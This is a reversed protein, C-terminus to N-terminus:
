VFAIISRRLTIRVQPLWLLLLQITEMVPVPVDPRRIGLEELFLKLNLTEKLSEIEAMAVLEAETTSQATLRQIKSSWQHAGVHVVESDYGAVM